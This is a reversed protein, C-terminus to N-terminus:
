GFDGYLGLGSTIQMASRSPISVTYQVLSIADVDTRADVYATTDLAVLASQCPVGACTARALNIPSRKHPGRMALDFAQTPKTNKL